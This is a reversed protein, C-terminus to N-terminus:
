DDSIEAADDDEPKPLCWVYLCSFGWTFLIIFAKKFFLFFVSHSQPEEFPLSPGTMSPRQPTGELFASFGDLLRM